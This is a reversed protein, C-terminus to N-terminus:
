PPNRPSDTVCLSSNIFAISLLFFNSLLLTFHLGDSSIAKKIEGSKDYNLRCVRGRKM